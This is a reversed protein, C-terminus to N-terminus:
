SYAAVRATLGGAVGSPTAADAGAVGDPRGGDPRRLAPGGAASRFPTPVPSCSFAFASLVQALQTPTGSVVSLAWALERAESEQDGRTREAPSGAVATEGSTPPPVCRAPLM